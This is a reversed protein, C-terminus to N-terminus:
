RRAWEKLAEWHRYERTTTQPTRPPATHAVISPYQYSGQMLSRFIRFGSITSDGLIENPNMDSQWNAHLLKMIDIYRNNFEIHTPEELLSRKRGIVPGGIIEQGQELYADVLDVIANLHEALEETGPTMEAIQIGQNATAWFMQLIKEHTEDDSQEILARIAERLGLKREYDEYEEQGAARYEEETWGTPGLAREPHRHHGSEWVWIDVSELDWPLEQSAIGLSDALEMAQKIGEFGSDMLEKFKDDHETSEILERIYERLLNM